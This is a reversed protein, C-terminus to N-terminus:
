NIPIVKEIKKGDMLLKFPKVEYLTSFSNKEVAHGDLRSLFKKAAGTSVTTVTRDGIMIEVGKPCIFTGVHHYIDSLKYKKSINKGCGLCYRARSFNEHDCYICARLSSEYKFLKASCSSCKQSTSKNEAGCEMCFKLGSASAKGIVNHRSYTYDYVTNVKKGEFLRDGRGCIQEYLNASSTPRLIVVNFVSPEDFGTTLVECNILFNVGGGKFAKLISARVDKSLKSSIIHASFGRKNLDALIKGCHELDCGFFISKNGDYQEFFHDLCKSTQPCVESSLLANNNLTSAKVNILSEIPVPAFVRPTLYGANILEEKEIECVLHKFIDPYIDGIDTRYPTATFGYVTSFSRIITEVMGGKKVRHAEDIVLVDGSLKNFYAHHYTCVKPYYTLFQNVLEVSPCIIWADLEKAITYMVLSKGSGTPSVALSLHPAKLIASVLTKQYPRLIKM